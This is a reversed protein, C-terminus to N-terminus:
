EVVEIKYTSNGQYRGPATNKNGVKVTMGVGPKGVPQADVINM